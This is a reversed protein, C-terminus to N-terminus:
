HTSVPGTKKKKNKEQRQHPGRLARLLNFSAVFIVSFLEFHFPIRYKGSVSSFFFCVRFQRFQRAKSCHRSIPFAKVDVAAESVCSITVATRFRFHSLSFTHTRVLFGSFMAIGSVLHISNRGPEKVVRRKTSHSRINMRKQFGQKEEKRDPLQVKGLVWIKKYTLSPFHPM